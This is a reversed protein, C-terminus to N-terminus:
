QARGETVLREVSRGAAVWDAFGGELRRALFGRARLLDLADYSYLCYFGRCYAVIEEGATLESLRQELETVPISIAGPV